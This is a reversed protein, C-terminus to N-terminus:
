FKLQVKSPGNSNEAVQTDDVAGDFNRDQSRSKDMLTCHERSARIYSPFFDYDKSPSTTLLQATRRLWIEFQTIRTCRDDM